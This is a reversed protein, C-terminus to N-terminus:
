VFNLVGAGGTSLRDSEIEGVSVLFFMQDVVGRSWLRGEDRCELTSGVNEAGGVFECIVGALM